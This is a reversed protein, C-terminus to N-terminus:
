DGANFIRVAHFFAEVNEPPSGPPTDCGSSIIFNRHDTTQRLLKTTEDFVHKPSGSKFVSVPDLNGFVLRNKPVENLVEVMSVRNGFHLGGSGTYIMSQTVHGTNGCNHLIFLFDGDQVDDVIGKIYDSSFEDCMEASLLGAAPEAMLIGDTGLNKMAGIYSRLFSSCKDLLLKIVDPEIFLSTMIESMGFLRGALSFPGICGAFVPKDKIEKVALQAARLYQPVRASELSPVRLREVSEQDGVLRDTLSPIEKDSLNIRSGFAEAEVTLDMIMTAADPSYKEQVAKIARFQTEGDSVAEVITKGTSEIGPHTMIPVALRNPSNGLSVIWESVNM